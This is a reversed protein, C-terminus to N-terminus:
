RPIGSGDTICPVGLGGCGCYRKCIAPPVYGTLKKHYEPYMTEAGGLVAERPINHKEPVVSATDSPPLEAIPECPSSVGNGLNVTPDRMWVRSRVYPESFYVPDLIVARITLFDGHRMIHMTMTAQDSVPAGNRRIMSAKMHTTYTTLTDGEWVGTTFGGYTHPANPSPHPRGDVWITTVDRDVWGGIKWAIVRGTVPDLESWIRLGFPGLVIYFPTLYGCQYEPLSLMSYNYSLAKARGEDNLPLGLYDVPDPGAGREMDDQNSRSAWTGSLDFQAFAPASLLVLLLVLAATKLLSM